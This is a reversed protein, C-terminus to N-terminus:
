VLVRLRGLIVKLRLWQQYFLPLQIATEIFQFLYLVLSFLAAYGVVGSQAAYIIGSVLFIMMFLWTISFNVTELDSLRINWRMLRKLHYRLLIPQHGSVMNVQQELETNYGHNLNSTRKASLAYVMFTLLLVGLCAWFLNLDIAGIIIVTGVLGITTNILQPMLNEFFEVVETLFGLHATKTSASQGTEDGIATGLRQYVKAYFRSDFFRRAAGVVLSTIGLFGLAYAGKYQAEMTDGIAQGIFLPFLLFLGAELLVLLLTLSFQWRYQRMLKKM